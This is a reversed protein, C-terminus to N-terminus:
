RAPPASPRALMGSPMSSATMSDELFTGPLANEDLLLGRSATIGVPGSPRDRGPPDRPEPDLLVGDPRSGGAPTALFGLVERATLAYSTGPRDPAIAFAVGIVTGAQNM